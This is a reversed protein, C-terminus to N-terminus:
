APTALLQTNLHESRDYLLQYCALFDHTALSGPQLWQDAIKAWGDAGYHEDAYHSVVAALTEAVETYRRPDTVWRHIVEALTQRTQRDVRTHPGAARMQEVTPNGKLRVLNLGNGFLMVKKLVASEWSGPRGAIMTQDAYRYSDPAHLGGRSERLDHFVLELAAALSTVTKRGAHTFADRLTQVDQETVPLVPRLTYEARLQELSRTLQQTRDTYGDTMRMWSDGDQTVLRYPQEDGTRM